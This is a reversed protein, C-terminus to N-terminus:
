ESCHFEAPCVLSTLTYFHWGPCHPSYYGAGCTGAGTPQLGLSLEPQSGGGNNKNDNHTTAIPPIYDSVCDGMGIGCDVGHGSPDTYKIPNNRVYSYRNLNQPNAYGPVITDASLFRNIYPSSSGRFLDLLFALYRPHGAEGREAQDYIM